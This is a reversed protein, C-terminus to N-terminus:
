EGQNDSPFQTWLEKVWMIIRQIKMYDDFEATDVRYLARQQNFNVLRTPERPAVTQMNLPAATFSEAKDMSFLTLNLKGTGNLRFTVAGFHLISEAM